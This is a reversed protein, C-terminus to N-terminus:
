RGLAALTRSAQVLLSAFLLEVSEVDDAFGILTALGYGDAWVAHCRNALAIQGLLHVKAQAHPDDVPVRRAIPAEADAAASAEVLARDIAHRTILEQAKASFTEAEEPFDTSEAKALLARVKAIVPDSSRRRARGVGVPAQWAGPRGSVPPI